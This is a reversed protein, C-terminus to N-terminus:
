EKRDNKKGKWSDCVEKLYKPFESYNILPKSFIVVCVILIVMTAIELISKGEFSIEFIGGAFLGVIAFLIGIFDINSLLPRHLYNKREFIKTIVKEDEDFEVVDGIICNLKSNKM